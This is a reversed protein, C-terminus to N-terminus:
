SCHVAAAMATTMPIDAMSMSRSRRSFVVAAIAVSVAGTAAAVSLTECVGNSTALSPVHGDRHSTIVASIIALGISGGVQQTM